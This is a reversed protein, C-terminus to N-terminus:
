MATTPELEASLKCCASRRCPRIQTRAFPARAAYPEALVQSLQEFPAFDDREVAAAIVQEIRHNRPIYAPNARRMSEARENPHASERSM